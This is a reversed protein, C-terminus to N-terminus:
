YTTPELGIPPERSARTDALAKEKGPYHRLKCKGEGTAPVAGGGGLGRGKSRSLVPGRPLPPRSGEGRSPSPRDLDGADSRDNGERGGQPPPGPHPTNRRCRPLFIHLQSVVPRVARAGGTPHSGSEQRSTRLRASKMLLAAMRAVIRQPSSARVGRKLASPPDSSGASFLRPIEFQYVVLVPFPNVTKRGRTM